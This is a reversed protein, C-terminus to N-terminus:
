NQMNIKKLKKNPDELRLQNQNRVKRERLKNDMKIHQHQIM